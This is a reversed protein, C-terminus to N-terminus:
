SCSRLCSLRSFRMLLWVASALPVILKGIYGPLVLFDNYTLGGHTRSDLLTQVDLGDQHKYEHELYDLATTHDLIKNGPALQPGSSDVDGNTLPM